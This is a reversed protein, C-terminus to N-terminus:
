AGKNHAKILANAVGLAAKACEDNSWVGDFKSDHIAAIHGAIQAAIALRIPIGAEKAMLGLPQPYAPANPDVKM